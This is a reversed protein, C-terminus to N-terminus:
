SAPQQVSKLPARVDSQSRSLYASLREAWLAHARANPHRDFPACLYEREFPVSIDLWPVHVPSAERVRREMDDDPATHQAAVVFGVGAKSALEAFSGILAATVQRAYYDDHRIISKDVKGLHEDFIPVLRAYLRGESTMGARLYRAGNLVPRFPEYSALWLPAAINRDCHFSAYFLVIAAPPAHQELLRGARTLAHVTSYGNASFNRVRVNASAALRAGVCEGDGVGWGFGYSCGFLWVEAGDSAPTARSRDENVTIRFTYEEGAETEIRFRHEGPVPAYGLSAHPAVFPQAYHLWSAVGFHSQPLKPM